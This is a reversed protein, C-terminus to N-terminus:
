RKTQYVLIEYGDDDFRKVLKMSDALRVYRMVERAYRVPDQYYRGYMGQSLVLYDVGNAVYWTPARDIAREAQTVRFRLPSVFPAYSEVAILSGEPLESNIWERATARSDVTTIALAEGITRLLPAAVLAIVAVVLATRRFVPLIRRLPSSAAALDAAFIAALLLVCPVAPLLTRDNRVTFASIFLLYTTTFVALIITLSSRRRWGLVAQVLAFVLAVGTTQWLRHLYWASANGDMGHHPSSYTRFQYLVGLGSQPDIVIFPNFVIFTAVSTAAALWLPASTRPSWGCRLIHATILFVCVIAGNYKSAAAAGIAVGALLYNV